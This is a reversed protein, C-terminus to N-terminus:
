KTETMVSFGAKGFIRHCRNTFRFSVKNILIVNTGPRIGYKGLPYLGRIGLM